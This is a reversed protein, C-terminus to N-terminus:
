NSQFVSTIAFWGPGHESTRNLVVTSSGLPSLIAKHEADYDKSGLLTSAAIATSAEEDFYGVDFYDCQGRDLYVVSGCAPHAAAAQRIDAINRM